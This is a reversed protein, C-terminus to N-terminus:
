ADGTGLAKRVLDTYKALQEKKKDAYSMNARQHDYEDLAERAAVARAAGDREGPKPDRLTLRQFHGSTAGDHKPAYPREAKAVIKPGEPTSVVDGKKHEHFGGAGGFLQRQRVTISGDEHRHVVERMKGARGALAKLRDAYDRGFEGELAMRSQAEVAPVSADIIAQPVSKGERVARAVQESWNGTFGRDELAKMAADYDDAANAEKYLARYEAETHEWPAKETKTTDM